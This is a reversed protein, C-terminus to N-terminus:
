RDKLLLALEHSRLAHNAGTVPDIPGNSEAFPAPTKEAVEPLASGQVCVIM